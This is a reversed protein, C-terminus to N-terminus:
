SATSCHVTASPATCPLPTLPATHICVVPNWARGGEVPQDTTQQVHTKRVKRVPFGDNKTLKSLTTIVEAFLEWSKGLFSIESLISVGVGACTSKENLTSPGPVWYHVNMGGHKGGM